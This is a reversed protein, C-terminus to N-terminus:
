VLGLATLSPRAHRVLVALLAAAAAALLAKFAAMERQGRRLIAAYPMTTNILLLAPKPVLFPLVRHLLM